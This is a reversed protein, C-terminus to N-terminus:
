KKKFKFYFYGLGICVVVFGIIKIFSFVFNLIFAIVLVSIVFLIINTKNLYKNLM